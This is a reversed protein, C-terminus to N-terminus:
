HTKIWNTINLVTQEEVNLYGHPTLANCVDTNTTGGDVMFLSGKTPSKTLRALIGTNPANVQSPPTCPCLDGVDAAVYASVNIQGLTPENNLTDYVTRGCQASSVGDPQHTTTQTSTLVIGDPRGLDTDDGPPKKVSLPLRSAINKVSLTGASTGVIWVKIAHTKSRVDAIVASMMTANASSLRDNGDMATADPADVLAVAVGNLAFSKQTRALFNADLNTNIHGDPSMSLLGNGGVFLVAAYKSGAPTTTMLRYRIRHQRVIIPGTQQPTLVDVVQTSVTQASAPAILFCIVASLAAVLPACFQRMHLGRYQLM